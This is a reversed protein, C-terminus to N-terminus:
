VNLGPGRPRAFRPRGAPHRRLTAEYVGALRAAVREPALRAMARRGDTRRREDLEASLLAAFENADFGSVHCGETGAILQPIDGVGSAVIPLNCAMAQKIINPSGEARSPFALVDCASMYLALRPQTDRHVVVLEVDPHTKRVIEVAAQALPFNKRPNHPSAAFLVYPRKADLGLEARARQRNAPTFQGLDVEHPIVHVDSRRLRQAMEDNQVIVADVFEAFLRGGAAILRESVPYRGDSDPAGQLDAGHYTLVIPVQWQTRAVVGVYSYHAHILDFQQHRLRSHLQPVGKLYILKRWRGRLVLLGVDIGFDRLAKVQSQVFSGFEPHEATPWIATAVLVRIPRVDSRVPHAVTRDRRAPSVRPSTNVAM